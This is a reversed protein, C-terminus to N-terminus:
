YHVPVDSCLNLSLDSPEEELFRGTSEQSVAPAEDHVPGDDLASGQMQERWEYRWFVEPECPAPPRSYSAHWVPEAYQKPGCM